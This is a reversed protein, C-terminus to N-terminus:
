KARFDSKGGTKEILKTEKIVIEHSMAKCMDYVTLAAISAGVMAEM